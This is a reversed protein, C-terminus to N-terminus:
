SVILYIMYRFNYYIVNRKKQLFVYKEVIRDDFLRTTTEYFLNKINFM